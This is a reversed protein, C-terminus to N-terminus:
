PNTTTTPPPDAPAPAPQPPAPQTPPAPAPATQGPVATDPVPPDAPATTTATPTVAPAVPPPADAPPTTEVATPTAGAPQGGDDTLTVFSFALLGGALAIMAVVVLTPLRWNPTPALRTRAPAGCELCWDQEAGITASCRPCPLSGPEPVQAPDEPPRTSM